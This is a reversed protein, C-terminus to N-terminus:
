EDFADPELWFDGPAPDPEDDELPEPEWTERHPDFEQEAWPQEECTVTRILNAEPPVASSVAVPRKRPCMQAFGENRATHMGIRDCSGNAPHQAQGGEISHM